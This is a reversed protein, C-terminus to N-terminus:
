FGFFLMPQLRRHLCFRRTTPSCPSICSPRPSYYGSQPSRPWGVSYFTRPRLWFACCFRMSAFKPRCRLWLHFFPLSFSALGVPRGFLYTLWRFLLWCFVPGAIISPLRLVFESNGLARWFYLVLILLPPHATDLSAQYAGAFSDTHAALLHLAEDPNLFTGSATWVRLLFGAALLLLPPLDPHTRFWSM